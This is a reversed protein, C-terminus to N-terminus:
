EHKKGFIEGFVGLGFAMAGVTSFIGPKSERAMGAISKAAEAEEAPM